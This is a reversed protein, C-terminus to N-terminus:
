PELGISRCYAQQQEARGLHDTIKQWSAAVESLAAAPEATGAAARRVADDLAAMYEAHGPMRPSFLWGPQSFSQAAMEGYQKAAEQPMGPEVWHQPQALQSRRFLTTASSATSVKASWEDGSLWVLLQFAADASTTERSISGLRGAIGLLPVHPDDDPKRTTWQHERPNFVEPSGPLEVFGILPASSAAASDTATPWSLAM